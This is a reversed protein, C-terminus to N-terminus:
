ISATKSKKRTSSGKVRMKRNASAKAKPLVKKAGQTASKVKPSSLLDEVAGGAAEPLTEEGKLVKGAHELGTDITKSAIRHLVGSKKAM